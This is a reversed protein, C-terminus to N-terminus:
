FVGAPQRVHAMFAPQALVFVPREDMSASNPALPIHVPVRPYHHSALLMSCAPLDVEDISLHQLKVAPV